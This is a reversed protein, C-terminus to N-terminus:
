RYKCNEIFKLRHFLLKAYRTSQKLEEENLNSRDNLSLYMPLIKKCLIFEDCSTPPVVLLELESGNYIVKMVDMTDIDLYYEGVFGSDYVSRIDLM